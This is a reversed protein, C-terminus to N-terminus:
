NTLMSSFLDTLYYPLLDQFYHNSGGPGGQSPGAPMQLGVELSDHIRHVRLETELSGTETGPDRSDTELISSNNSSLGLTVGHLM